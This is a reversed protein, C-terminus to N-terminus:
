KNSKNKKNTSPTFLIHSRKSSGDKYSNSKREARIQQKQSIASASCYKKEYGDYPLPEPINSSHEHVDVWDILKKGIHPNMFQKSTQLKDNFHVGNMKLNKFHIM